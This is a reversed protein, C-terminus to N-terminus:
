FWRDHRRTLLRGLVGDGPTTLRRAAARARPRPSAPQPPSTGEAVSTRDHPTSPDRPAIQDRRTTLIHAAAHVGGLALPLLLWSSSSLRKDELRRWAWVSYPIVVLPATVVGPTYGRVVAAQALHVVGHAGFAALAARYFGSRPGSAAAAAVVGGMLGIAVNVHRQDVDMADWVRDPVWPFRQALRPRARRAWGAMTALEEADHLAWAALLGWAAM